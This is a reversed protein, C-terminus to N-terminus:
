KPKAEKERLRKMRLIIATFHPNDKISQFGRDDQLGADDRYGAALAAELLGFGAARQSRKLAAPEAPLGAALTFVVKAQGVLAAAAKRSEATATPATMEDIVAPHGIAMLTRMNDYTKRVKMWLPDTTLPPTGEIRRVKDLWADAAAFNGDFIAGTALLLSGLAVSIAADRSPKTALNGEAVAVAVALVRGTPDSSPIRM